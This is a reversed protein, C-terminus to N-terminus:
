VWETIATSSTVTSHKAEGRTADGGAEGAGNGAGGGGGRVRTWDSSLCNESSNSLMREMRTSVAPMCIVIARFSCSAASASARAASALASAAAKFIVSAALISIARPRYSAVVDRPSARPPPAARRSGALVIQAPALKEVTSPFVPHLAVLKTGVDPVPVERSSTSRCTYARQSKVKNKGGRVMASAVPRSAARSDVMHPTLRGASVEGRPAATCGSTRTRDMRESSMRAPTRMAAHWHHPEGGM